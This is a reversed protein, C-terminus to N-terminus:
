PTQDSNATLKIPPRKIILPQKEQAARPVTGAKTKEAAENYKTKTGDEAKIGTPTWQSELIQLNMTKMSNQIYKAM